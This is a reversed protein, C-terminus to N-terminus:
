PRSLKGRCVTGSEDPIVYGPQSAASSSQITTEVELESGSVAAETQISSRSQIMTGGGAREHSVTMRHIMRDSSVNISDLVINTVGGGPPVFKLAQGPSELEVQRLGSSTQYEYIPNGSPAFKFIVPVNDGDDCALTGNWTTSALAGAERSESSSGSDSALGSPNSLTSLGILAGCAVCGGMVIVLVGIISGLIIWLKTNTKAPSQIDSPFPPQYNSM